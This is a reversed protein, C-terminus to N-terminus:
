REKDLTLLATSIDTIRYREGKIYFIEDTNINAISVKGLLMKFTKYVSATQLIHGGPNVHWDIETKISSSM